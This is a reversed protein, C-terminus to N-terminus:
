QESPLRKKIEDFFRLKRKENEKFMENAHEVCRTLLSHWVEDSFSSDPLIWKGESFLPVDVTVPSTICCTIKRNEATGKSCSIIGSNTQAAESACQLLAAAAEVDECLIHLILPEFKLQLVETQLLLPTEVVTDRWARFSVLTPLLDDQVCQRVNPLPDHSQFLTGRGFSGRKRQGDSPTPSCIDSKGKHFLSIRGSCSSSTVYQSFHTNVYEVLDAVLPDVRGALSKDNTNDKLDKVIQTRLNRFFDQAVGGHTSKRLLGKCPSLM